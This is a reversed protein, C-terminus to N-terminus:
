STPRQVTGKLPPRDHLRSFLVPYDPLVRHAAAGRDGGVVVVVVPVVVTATGM